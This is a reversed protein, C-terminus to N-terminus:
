DESPEPSFRKPIPNLLMCTLKLKMLTTMAPKTHSM